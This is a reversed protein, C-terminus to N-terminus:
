LDFILRSSYGPSKRRFTSHFLTLEQLHCVSLVGDITIIAILMIPFTASIFFKWLSSREPENLKSAV